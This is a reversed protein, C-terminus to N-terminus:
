NISLRSDRCLILETSHVLFKIYFLFIIWIFTNDKNQMAYIFNVVIKKVFNRRLEELKVKKKPNTM